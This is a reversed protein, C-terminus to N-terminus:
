GAASGDHNARSRRQLGCDGQLGVAGNVGTNPLPPVPATAKLQDWVSIGCRSRNRVQLLRRQIAQATLGEFTM